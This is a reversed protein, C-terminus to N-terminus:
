NKNFAGSIALIIVIVVIILLFIFIRNRYYIWRQQRHLKEAGGRFQNANRELDITKKELMELNEGREITKDINIKMIDIVANAQQQVQVLKDNSNSPNASPHNPPNYKRPSTQYSM